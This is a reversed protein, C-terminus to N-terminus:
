QPGVGSDQAHGATAEVLTDVVSIEGRAISQFHALSAPGLEDVQSQGCPLPATKAVTATLAFPFASTNAGRHRHFRLPLTKAAFAAPVCPLPLTKAWSPPPSVPLHLTEFPEALIATSVCTLTGYWRESSATPGLM